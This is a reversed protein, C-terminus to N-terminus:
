KILVKTTYHLGHTLDQTRLYYLGRPPHPSLDLRIQSTGTLTVAKQQVIQGATNVLELM